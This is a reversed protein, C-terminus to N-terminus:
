GKDARYGLMRGVPALLWYTLYQVPWPPSTVRIERRYRWMIVSAHLFNPVGKDNLKGEQSLAFFIDFFGDIHLAPRFEQIYHAAENGPNWFYHPINPAISISQGPGIVQENGNVLFHCSGEIMEFRNEQLPHIHEPEKVATPPSTCDIQLLQGNTDAGTHLFHMIQGTRANVITDGRKIM